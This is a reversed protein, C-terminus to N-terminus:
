PLNVVRVRSNYTDSVYLKNGHLEIGYPRDMRAELPPGGDGSFGRHDPNPSCRGAVTSIIGAPDIKRVCNNYVDTFYVTNDPGIEVDVPRNIKAAIAPGGDGGYGSEGTGAITTIFGATDVKRIRNNDTDAFILNGAHDYVLRGAPDAEQGFPQAMRAEIALGGDGGYGPTCPARCQSDLDGCALKNSNYLDPAAVNSCAAPGSGGCPFDKDIVCKGVIRHMMGNEDIMRIVQNAQDMIVINGSPHLAISSPLDLSAALAPGEDGDYYTRRGYGAYNSIMMDSLRVRKIRSNHWAALYLYGDHFFLDSTHNFYADIAPMESVGPAPSDGLEGNGIVSRIIGQADIARIVYNNFDLVWLEGDPSVATDQPFYISARTAPGNDGSFGQEGSGVITCITNPADPDCPTDGCAAVAVGLVAGLVLPLATRAHTKM